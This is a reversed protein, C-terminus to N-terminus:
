RRSLSHGSRPPIRLLQGSKLGTDLLQHVLLELKDVYDLDHEDAPDERALSPGKIQPLKIRSLVLGQAPEEVSRVFIGPLHQELTDLSGCGSSFIASEAQLTLGALYAVKGKVPSKNEM